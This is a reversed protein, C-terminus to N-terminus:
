IQEEKTACKQVDNLINLYFPKESSAATGGCPSAIIFTVEKWSTPHVVKTNQMLGVFAPMHMLVYGAEIYICSVERSWVCTVYM